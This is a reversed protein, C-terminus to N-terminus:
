SGMGKGTPEGVRKFMDQFIRWSMKEEEYFLVLHMLIDSNQM